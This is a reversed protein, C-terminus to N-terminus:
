ILDKKILNDIERHRVKGKGISTNIIATMETRLPKLRKFFGKVQEPPITDKSEYWSKWYETSIVKYEEEAKSLTM